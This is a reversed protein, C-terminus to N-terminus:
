PTEIHITTAIVGSYQISATGGSPLLYIDATESRCDPYGLRDIIAGYSQPWSLNKAAIAQEPSLGRGDGYRECPQAQPTPNAIASSQWDWSELATCGRLVAFQMPAILFFLLLRM